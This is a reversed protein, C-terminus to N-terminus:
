LERDAIDYAREYTSWKHTWLGILQAHDALWEASLCDRSDAFIERSLRWLCAAGAEPSADSMVVLQMGSWNDAESHFPVFGDGMSASIADWSAELDASWALRATKKANASVMSGVLSTFPATLHALTEDARNKKPRWLSRCFQLLGLKARLGRLTTPRTGLNERLVSMTSDSVRYGGQLLTLGLYDIERAPGKRKSEPAKANVKELIYVLLNKLSMCEDFFRSWALIDDVFALIHTSGDTRYAEPIATSLLSHIAYAWYFSSLKFGMTMFRFLAYQVTGDSSYYSFGFLHMSSEEYELNFFAQGVDL